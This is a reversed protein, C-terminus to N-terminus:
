NWEMGRKEEILHNIYGTYGGFEWGNRKAFNYNEETLRVTVTKLTGKHLPPRGAKKPESKVEPTEPITNAIEEIEKEIDREEHSNLNDLLDTVVNKQEPVEANGDLSGFNISRMRERASLKSSM